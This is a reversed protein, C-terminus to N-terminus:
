NWNNFNYNLSLRKIRSNKREPSTDKTRMNFLAANIYKIATEDKIKPYIEKIKKYMAYALEFDCLENMKRGNIQKINWENFYDYMIREDLSLMNINNNLVNENLGCKICGYYINKEKDIKSDDVDSVILMHRCSKFEDNRIRKYLDYQRSILNNNKINLDIYKAVYKNEKLLKIQKSNENIEETVKKYEENTELM